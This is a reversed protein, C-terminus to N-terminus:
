MIEYKKYIDLFSVFDKADSEGKTGDAKQLCSWLLIRMLTSLKLSLALLHNVKRLPAPM